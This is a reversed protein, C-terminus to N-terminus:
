EVIRVAVQHPALKRGDATVEPGPMVYYVTEGATTSSDALPTEELAHRLFYQRKIADSQGHVYGDDFGQQRVDPDEGLALHTVAGGALAGVATALPSKDGLLYGGAAGAASGAAVATARQATSSIHACGAAALTAIAVVAAALRSRQLHSLPNLPLNM